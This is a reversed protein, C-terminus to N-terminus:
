QDDDCQYNCKFLFEGSYHEKCYQVITGYVAPNGRSHAARRTSNAPLDPGSEPATVGSSVGSSVGACIDCVPPWDGPVPLGCGAGTFGSFCHCTGDVCLGNGLCSPPICNALSLLSVVSVYYLRTSVHIIYLADIYSMNIPVTNMYVDFDVVTIDSSRCIM